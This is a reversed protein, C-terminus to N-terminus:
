PVRCGARLGHNGSGAVVQKASNEIGVDVDSGKRVRLTPIGSNPIRRDIPAVFEHDRGGNDPFRGLNQPAIECPPFIPYQRSDAHDGLYGANDHRPADAVHYRGIAVYAAM